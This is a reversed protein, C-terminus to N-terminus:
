KTLFLFYSVSGSYFYKPKDNSMRRENIINIQENSCRKRGPTKLLRRKIKKVLQHMKPTISKKYSGTLKAPQESIKM